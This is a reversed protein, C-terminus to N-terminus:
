NLFISRSSAAIFSFARAATNNGINTPAIFNRLRERCRNAPKRISMAPPRASVSGSFASSFIGNERRLQTFTVGQPRGMDPAVHTDYGIVEFQIGREDALGSGSKNLEAVVSRVTEREKAMDGPSALFIKLMQYNKVEPM